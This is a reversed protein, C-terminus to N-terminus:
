LAIYSLDPIIYDLKDILKKKESDYRCINILDDYSTVGSMVLATDCNLNFGLKIDTNLNDGIMLIKGSNNVDKKGVLSYDINYYDLINTMSDIHPKGIIIQNNKIKYKKVKDSAELEDNILTKNLAKIDFSTHNSRVRSEIEKLINIPSYNLIKEGNIVDQIDPCGIILEAEPNNYIWQFSKVLNQDFNENNELSGVVIYDLNQPIVNNNINYFKIGKYKFTVKSKLYNYLEYNTIVGINKKLKYNFRGEKNQKDFINMLKNKILLSASIVHNKNGLEINMLQLDHKISKPDKDCDNTLIIYPLKLQNLKKIVIDSISLKKYGKKLVGDMDIMILDYNKINELVPKRLLNYNKIYQNKSKESYESSTLLNLVNSATYLGLSIPNYNIIFSSASYFYAM